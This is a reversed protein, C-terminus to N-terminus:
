AVNLSAIEVWYTGDNVYFKGTTNQFWLDGVVPSSPASAGISTGGGGGGGGSAEIELRNSADNYTVSVNTHYAHTFLPAVWDQIEEQTLGSVGTFNFHNGIDDYEITINQHTGAAFANALADQAREDTFYKNTSGENLNDTTKSTFQNTVSLDLTGASGGNDNYTATIGTHSGGTILSAASDQVRESTLYLNSSGEPVVDTSLVTEIPDSSSDGLWIKGNALTATLKTEISTDIGDLRTDITTFFSADDNIAAALENLTNLVGPASDVLAAVAEDTYTNATEIAYDTSIPILESWIDVGNGIKLIQTDTEFGAEGVALVPDADTWQAATGRRFQIKTAM